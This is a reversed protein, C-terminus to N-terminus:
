TFYFERCKNVEEDPLRKTTLEEFSDGRLLRLIFNISYVGCDFSNYQHRLKNYDVVPKKGLNDKIFLAFRKMLKRIREAPEVGYSDSFYVVGKNLDVYMSVWHSGPQDHEDLNFIIGIRNKGKDMLDKKYDLKRINISELSDFDIPVAGLFKFDPYKKEYQEMTQDINNTNLWTTKKEPGKPRFTDKELEEKMIGKLKDMFKQKVWCKQDDCVKNLKIQFQKVLYRKYKKPNITEHTSDLRILNDPNESNYAKAMEVLIYLPICSGNEFKKSPACKLDKENKPRIESSRISELEVDIQKTTGQNGNDVPRKKYQSININTIDITKNNEYGGKINKNLKVM